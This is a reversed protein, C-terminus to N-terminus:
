SCGEVYDAQPTLGVRWRTVKGDAGVEFVLKSPAVGSATISLYRGGEVYKHPTSQLGGKYLAQLADAQMGVKGGGPATEKDTGVDYRVFKGDEIMFALENGDKAWKPLLYHCTSGEAAPLSKLEGGWATKAEDESSGLKMDGFGALGAQAMEPPAAPDTAPPAPSEAPVDAAPPPAPADAQEPPQAAPPKCAALALTLAFTLLVPKPAFTM